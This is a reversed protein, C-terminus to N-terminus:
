DGTRSAELMGPLGTNGALPIRKLTEQEHRCELKRGWNNWLAM